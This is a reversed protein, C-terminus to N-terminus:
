NGRRAYYQRVCFLTLFAVVGALAAPFFAVGSGLGIAAFVGFSLPISLFVLIYLWQRWKGVGILMLLIGAIALASSLLPGPVRGEPAYFHVALYLTYVLFLALGPIACLLFLLGKYIKSRLGSQM